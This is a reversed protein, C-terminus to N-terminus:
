PAAGQTSADADVRESMTLIVADDGVDENTFRNADDRCDGDWGWPHLHDCIGCEYYTRM